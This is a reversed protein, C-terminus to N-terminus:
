YPLAIIFLCGCIQIILGFFLISFHVISIIKDIIQNSLYILIQFKVIGTILKSIPILIIMDVLLDIAEGIFKFIGSM